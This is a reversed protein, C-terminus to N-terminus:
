LACVFSGFDKMVLVADGVGSVGVHHRGGGREVRGVALAQLGHEVRDGLRNRLAPGGEVLQPVEAALPGGADRLIIGRRTCGTSKKTLVGHISDRGSAARVLQPLQRDLHANEVSCVRSLRSSM